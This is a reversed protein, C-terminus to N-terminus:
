VHSLRKYLYLFGLGLPPSQSIAVKEDNFLVFRGEKKIHAVYHGCGTNSGMHSAFGVMEYRGPGDVKSSAISEVMIDSGHGDNTAPSGSKCEEAAVASDLDEAHSFLWDAARELSGNTAKLAGKAHAVSFGMASLMEISEVSPAIGTAVGGPTTSAVTVPEPALLPDNFDADGMHSLVWEMCVDASANGTAVAARKAGNESFGMAVVQSVVATDPVVSAPVEAQEAANRVVDEPLLQEGERVGTGRLFELDIEEPLLVSVDLKRPTWDPALYYKRMHVMLYEPFTSLRTQKLATGKVGTASSTFDTIAETAMLQDICAQFPVDLKVPEDEPTTSSLDMKQKKLKRAEYEEVLHKNTAANVPIPLSLMNDPRSVYRVQGTQECQVRDEFEFKFMASTPVFDSNGGLRSAGIREARTMSELLHQFFEGADQQRGSSFEPHGKGILQKFMFPRISCPSPPEVKANALSTDTIKLSSSKSEGDYVIPIGHTYRDTLLGTALKATMTILDASPDDPASAVIDKASSLYREKVLPLAFILQLVSNMYCSNGLNELGVYGPGALPVLNAGGSETIKDFEYSANLDIQLEAMTKETKEQQLMNIGWHALHQALHPDLVMDDEDPAYSYVDAGSPTITGLKVALPYKRGTEEYHRLAAGTGGTGDWNQRGSGIYGTSLNLWLNDAVGSDECKWQSPDPPITKGNDLQVLSEAYKSMKRDEEEWAAAIESARAFGEHKMIADVVLAVMDPLDPNGVALVTAEVDPLAVVFATKEIDYHKSNVDFGGEIGIALKSPGTEAAPENSSRPKAIRRWVQKLYLPNANKRYDAAVYEAGFSQWTTLSTFLGGPSEPTDFSFMCEDKFVRDRRGPVRISAMGARIAEM